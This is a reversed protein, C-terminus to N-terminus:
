RHALRDMEHRIQEETPVPQAYVDWAHFALGIGWGFMPFMPWFFGDPGTLMWIGVLFANVLVYALAHAGFDRKKRLRSVALRRLEDTQQMQDTM